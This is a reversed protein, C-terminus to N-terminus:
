FLNSETMIKWTMIKKKSYRAKPCMLHFFPVICKCITDASNTSAFLVVDGNCSFKYPKNFLFFSIFFIANCAPSITNREKTYLTPRHFSAYYGMKPCILYQLFVFAEKQVYFLVLVHKTISFEEYYSKCM